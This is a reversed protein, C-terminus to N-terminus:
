RINYKKLIYFINSTTCNFQQAIDKVNRGNKYLEIIEEAQYVISNERTYSNKKQTVVFNNKLITFISKVNCNLIKAIKAKSNGDNYL